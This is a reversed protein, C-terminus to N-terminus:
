TTSASRETPEQAEIASVRAAPRANSQMMALMCLRPLTYSDGGGWAKGSNARASIVSAIEVIFPWGFADLVQQLEDDGWLRRDQGTPLRQLMSPRLHVDRAFANRIEVVGMRFALIAGVDASPAANCAAVEEVKLSRILVERLFAGPLPHVHSLDRSGIGEYDGFGAYRALDSKERDIGRDLVSVVVLNQNPDDVM